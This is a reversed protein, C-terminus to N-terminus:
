CTGSIAVSVPALAPWVLPHCPGWAPDLSLSPQCARTSQLNLVVQPNPPTSRNYVKPSPLQKKLRFLTNKKHKKKHNTTSNTTSIKTILDDPFNHVKQTKKQQHLKSTQQAIKQSWIMLSTTCKKHKKQHHLQPRHWIYYLCMIYIYIYIYIYQLCNEM